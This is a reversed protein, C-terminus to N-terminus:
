PSPACAASLAVAIGIASSWIRTHLGTVPSTSAVPGTIVQALRVRVRRQDDSATAATARTTGKGFTTRTATCGPSTVDAANSALM